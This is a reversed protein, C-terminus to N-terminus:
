TQAAVRLNLIPLQDFNRTMDTGRESMQIAFKVKERASMLVEKLLKDTMVTAM